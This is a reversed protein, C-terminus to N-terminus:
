AQHCTIEGLPDDQQGEVLIENERKSVARAPRSNVIYVLSTEFECHGVLRQTRQHLVPTLPASSCGAAMDRLTSLVHKETLKILGLFGLNCKKKQKNTQKNTQKPPPNITKKQKKKKKSVPSKQAATATRSSVRYVLSAKFEFGGGEAEWTSPNFAHVVM